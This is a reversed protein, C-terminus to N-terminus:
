GLNSKGRSPAQWTMEVAPQLTKQSATSKPKASPSAIAFALTAGALSGLIAFGVNEYTYSFTIGSINITHVAGRALAKITAGASRLLSPAIVGAIFLTIALEILLQLVSLANQRKMSDRKLSLVKELFWAIASRRIVPFHFLPSPRQWRSVRKSGRMGTNPYEEMALGWNAPVIQNGFDIRKETTTHNMRSKGRKELEDEVLSQHCYFRGRQALPDPLQFFIPM